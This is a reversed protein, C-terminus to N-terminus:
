PIRSLPRRETPVKLARECGAERKMTPLWLDPIAQPPRVFQCRGKHRQGSPLLSSLLGPFNLFDTDKEGTKQLTLKGQFSPKRAQPPLPQLCRRNLGTIQAQLLRLLHQATLSAAPSLCPSPGGGGWQGECTHQLLCNVPVFM